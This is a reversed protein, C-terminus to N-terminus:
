EILDVDDKEAGTAVDRSFINRNGTLRICNCDVVRRNEPHFRMHRQHDRFDVGLIHTAM